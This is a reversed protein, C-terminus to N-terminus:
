SVTTNRLSDPILKKLITILLLFYKRHTPLYTMVTPIPINPVLHSHVKLKYSLQFALKGAYLKNDVKNTSQIMRSAQKHSTEEIENTTRVKSWLADANFDITLQGFTASYYANIQQSPKKVTVSNSSSLLHDYYDGNALIESEAKYWVKDKPSASLSYRIGVSQNNNIQYNMGLEGKYNNYLSAEKM